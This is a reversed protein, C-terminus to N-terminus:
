ASEATQKGGTWVGARRFYRARGSPSPNKARGKSSEFFGRVSQSRRIVSRHRNPRQKGPKRSEGRKPIKRSNKQLPRRSLRETSGAAGGLPVFGMRGSVCGLFNARHALQSNAASSSLRPAVEKSRESTKSLHYVAQMARVSVRPWGTEDTRRLHPM